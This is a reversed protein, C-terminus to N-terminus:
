ARMDIVGEADSGGSTADQEREVDTCMPQTTLEVRPLQTIDIGHVFHAALLREPLDTELSAEVLFGLQYTLERSGPSSMATNLAKKSVYSWQRMDIEVVFANHDRVIRTTQDLNFPKGNWKDVLGGINPIGLKSPEATMGIIKFAAGDKDRRSTKQELLRMILHKQEARLPLADSKRFYSVASWGPDKKEDDTLRKLMSPAVFPVQCNVVMLEPIESDLYEQKIRGELRLQEFIEESTIKGGASRMAVAKELEYIPDESEIKVKDVLYNQGRVKFASGPAREARLPAVDRWAIVPNPKSSEQEHKCATRGFM